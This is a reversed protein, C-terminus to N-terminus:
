FFLRLYRDRERGARVVFGIESRGIGIDRLGRDSMSRLQRMAERELRRQLRREVRALWWRGLRAALGGPFHRHPRAAAAAATTITSMITEM